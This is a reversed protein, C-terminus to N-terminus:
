RPRGGPTVERSSWLNVMLGYGTNPIQASTLLAKKLSKMWTNPDTFREKAWIWEATWEVALASHPLVSGFLMISAIIIEKTRM